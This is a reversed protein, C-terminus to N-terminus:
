NKTQKTKKESKLKKQKSVLYMHLFLLLMRLIIYNILTKFAPM